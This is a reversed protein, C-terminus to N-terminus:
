NNYSSKIEGLLESVGEDAALELYQEFSMIAASTDAQSLKFNANAVHVFPSRPYNSINYDYLQAGLEPEGNYGFGMAWANIYSELPKVDYGMKNSMMDFHAEVEEVIDKDRQPSDKDYYDGIKDFRFGGYIFKLGQPLGKLPVTFHNEEMEMEFKMSLGKLNTKEIKDKFRLVSSPLGMLMSTDNKIEEETLGKTFPGAGVIYVQQNNFIQNTFADIAQEASKENDWDLAPDLILYNDFLNKNNVLTNLVFLGGLSHGVLTKYPAVPYKENVFPILEDSIFKIFTSGGGQESIGDQGDSSISPSLDDNRNPNRIGVIIHPPCQDNASFRSSLQDVIGVLPLFHGDADVVYIVPFKVDTTDMGYFEAPVHVWVEREEGLIESEIIEITAISLEDGSVALSNDDAISIQDCSFFISLACILLYLLLNTRRM